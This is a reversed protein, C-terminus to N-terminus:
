EASHTLWFHSGGRVTYFGSLAHQFSASKEPTTIWGRSGSAALGCHNSVSLPWPLLCFPIKLFYIWFLPTKSLMSMSVVYFYVVAFRLCLIRYCSIGLLPFLGCKQFHKEKIRLYFSSKLSIENSIAGRQRLLSSRTQMDVPHGFHCSLEGVLNSWDEANIKLSRQYSM